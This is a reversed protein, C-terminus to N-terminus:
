ATGLRLDPRRGAPRSSPRRATTPSSAAPRRPVPIPTPSWSSGTGGATPCSRRPTDVGQAYYGYTSDFPSMEGIGGDVLDAKRGDPDNFFAIDVESSRTVVSPLLHEPIAGLISQSGIVLVDPDDVIASM